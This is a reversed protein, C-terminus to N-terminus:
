KKVAGTTKAMEDIAKWDINKFYAELYAKRDSGFDIFYAHEYVDCNLVPVAGWIGGQNHADGVYNHLRGDSHDYALVVWGRATMACALFDEKWADFSGFDKAIMDVIRGSPKGDGGLIGFFIEHLIMGNAAFSEQRKLEGFASYTANAKTKDSTKLAAEIENRKNVYGAYLKNHHIQNTKDSIGGGLLAFPLPKVQHVPANEAM